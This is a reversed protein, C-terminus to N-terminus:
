NCVTPAAYNCAGLCYNCHLVKPQFAGTTKSNDYSLYTLKTHRATSFVGM